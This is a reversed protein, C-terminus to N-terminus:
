KLANWANVIEDAYAKWSRSGTDINLVPLRSKQAAERRRLTSQVIADLVALRSGFYTLMDDSWTTGARDERDLCRHALDQEPIHLLVTLCKLRALREDFAAYLDWDPLLAYYSLHFRELVFGVRGQIRGADQELLALVRELRRLHHYNSIGPERIEAMVEGFTEDEDFVRGSGLLSSFEHHQMLAQLTQTKGAGTVGELLIGSV